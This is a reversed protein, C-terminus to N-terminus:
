RSFFCLLFWLSRSIICVNNTFNIGSLFFEYLILSQNKLPQCQINTVDNVVLLNGFKVWNKGVPHSKTKCETIQLLCYIIQSCLLGKVTCSWKPWLFPTWQPHWNCKKTRDTSQQSRSSRCFEHSLDLIKQYFRTLDKYMKLWLRRRKGESSKVQGCLQCNSVFNITPGFAFQPHTGFQFVILLDSSAFPPGKILCRRWCVRVM